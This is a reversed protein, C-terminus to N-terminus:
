RFFSNQRAAGIILCLWGAIFAFGGFPTLMGLISIKTISLVYLSGSFLVIGLSFLVAAAGYLHSNEKMLLLGCILIGISHFMQYQVGTEWTSANSGLIDKLAHAGFAGIAVSLMAFIGGTILAKKM